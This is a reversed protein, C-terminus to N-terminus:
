RWASRTPSVSEPTPRDNCPMAQLRNHTGSKGYINKLHYQVTYRTVFMAEATQENSKYNVLM